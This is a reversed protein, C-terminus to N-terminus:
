ADVTQGWETDLRILEAGCRQAMDCMREGFYGHVCVLVKEGPEVVNDMAAEMGASGTGSVPLTLYNATQFTYQLLGTTEDMVKLFAPDLHGVIPAAMARMVRPDVNSPGPGLLLRTPPNLEAYTETM